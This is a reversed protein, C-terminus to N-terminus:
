NDEVLLTILGVDRHGCDDRVRLNLAELDAVRMQRLIGNETELITVGLGVRVGEGNPLCLKTVECISCLNDNIGHDSGTFGLPIDLLTKDHEQRVAVIALSWLM